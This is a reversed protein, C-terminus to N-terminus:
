CILRRNTPRKHISSKNPTVNFFFGFHTLERLLIRKDGQQRDTAHNMIMQLCTSCRLCYMFGHPKTAMWRLLRLAFIFTVYNKFQHAAARVPIIIILRICRGDDDRNLRDCPLTTETALPSSSRSIIKRNHM